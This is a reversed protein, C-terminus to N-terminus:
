SCTDEEQLFGVARALLDEDAALGAAVQSVAFVEVVENGHIACLTAEQVPSEAAEEAIVQQLKQLSVSNLCLRFATAPNKGGRVVGM